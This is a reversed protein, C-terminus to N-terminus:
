IAFPRKLQGELAQIMVEDAREAGVSTYIPCVGATTGTYWCHLQRWPLIRLPGSAPFWILSWSLKLAICAAHRAKKRESNSRRCNAGM